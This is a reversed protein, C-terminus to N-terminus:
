LAAGHVLFRRMWEVIKISFTPSSEWAFLNAGKAQTAWTLNDVGELKALSSMPLVIQQHIFITSGGNEVWEGRRYYIFM